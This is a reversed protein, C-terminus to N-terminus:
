LVAQPFLSGGGGGDVLHPRLILGLAEHKVALAKVWPATEGARMPQNTQSWATWALVIAVERPNPHCTHAAVGPSLCNAEFGDKIAPPIVNWTPYSPFPGLFALAAKDRTRPTANRGQTGLCGVGGRTVWEHQALLLMAAMSIM